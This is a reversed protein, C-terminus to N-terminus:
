DRARADVWAEMKERLMMLPIAGDELVRDHFARIDFREGLRDRAVERLRLIELSGLMYATAQGPVAIYRDVEATVTSVDEATNALMYDIARQRSWGLAHMGADVVLRAARLAENSLLGMRDVDTSYLDMEDALREAYLAWGEGFGSLFIYRSVPHLEEREQALAIQTHHGPDAEHFSTAEVGARPRAEAGRLNIYYIGPRSGDEAPANYYAFPAGEEAYAPVPEVVLEARPTRGFWDPLAERARASAERAIRLMEERSSVQYRPESRLADLLSDVDETGFSRRAIERMEERITEMQEAGIRHVEEPDVEVTAHQRIAARYCAEGAPNASVGVEERASPLYEDRLFDRYRAIAPRIERRELTALRARFDDAGEPAMQVFPSEELPQDLLAEVQRIVARVNGRPASYGERLGIRLNEVEQDLYRPLEGFRRIAAQHREPTGVPQINALGGMRSPWGTWTPSVNWLETRCVRFDRANRLTERLFGHTVAEARDRPLADADVAELGALISDQLAEWTSRAQPSIDPLRHHDAAAVGTRTAADPFADFYAEVYRDALETVARAPEERGRDGREMASPDEEASACAAAGMGLPLALVIAVARHIPARRM